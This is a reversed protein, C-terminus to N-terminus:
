PDLKIVSLTYPYDHGSNLKDPGTVMDFNSVILENGRVLPEGPQDLGGQSGDCDPSKALIRVKGEPSVICIANNSFDAVYINDQDDVCIGDISKMGEDKAWRVNATVNGAADFTIKHVVADGFNGVYLNGHSDFVLGDAGYQCDLNLTKITTLLNKDALTNNM